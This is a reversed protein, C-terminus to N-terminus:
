GRISVRSGHEGPVAAEVVLRVPLREKVEEVHTIIGVSMGGGSLRELYKMVVDITNKDLTGFGEDLFFFNLSASNKMQIRSSLALALSFSTLFTEGGSLTSPKRRIGGCFDDRIIFEGDFLELAYRGGSINKLRVSADEAIYELQNEAMYEVFRNGETLKSLETLMDSKKQVEKQTKRLEKVTAINEKIQELEKERVATENSKEDKRLETEKLIRRLEILESENTYRGSLEDNYKKMNDEALNKRRSYTKALELVKEAEELLGHPSMGGTLRKIEEINKLYISQINEVEKESVKIQSIIEFIEKDNKKEEEYVKDLTARALRENKEAEAYKREKESAKKREESLKEEKTYESVEKDYADRLEKLSIGGTEKIKLDRDANKVSILKASASIESKIKNIERDAEETKKKLVMLEKECSDMLEKEISKAIEPHETSGCVPCKKGSELKEALIAAMNRERIYEGAKEAKEIEENLRTRKSEANQLSDNLNQVKKNEAEIQETVANIEMYLKRSNNFNDKAAHVAEIKEKLRDGGKILEDIDERRENALLEKIKVAREVEEAAKTKRVSIDKKRSELTENLKKENNLRDYIKKRELKTKENEETIEVARKFSSVAESLKERDPFDMGIKEAFDDISKKGNEIEKLESECEKIKNIISFINETEEAKKKVSALEESIKELEERSFKLEKEKQIYIEESIDGYVEIKSNVSNLQGNVEAKESKLKQALLSGYKELDFIRELMSRREAGRLNLFESFKGQPLVVTRTFDGFSLGIIKEVAKNMEKTKDAIIQPNEKGKSLRATVATCEKSGTRKFAREARYFIENEGESVCFDLMVFATDCEKNIFENTDRSLNGYLAITMADLVTSKGSGTDGVIGFVGDKTLKEFNITQEECFSNIGKIKLSIPRM